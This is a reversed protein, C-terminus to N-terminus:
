LRPEAADSQMRKNPPHVQLANIEQNLIQLHRNLHKDVNLFYIALESTLKEDFNELKVLIKIHEQNLSAVLLNLNSVDNQISKLQASGFEVYDGKDKNNLENHRGVTATVLAASVLTAALLSTGLAWQLRKAKVDTGKSFAEMIETPSRPDFEVALPIQAWVSLWYGIILVPSPSVIIVLSMLSYSTHSLGLGIFAGGTYIGWLWGITKQLLSAANNRNESGSEVMKRSEDFWFQDGVMPKPSSM